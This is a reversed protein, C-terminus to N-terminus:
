RRSKVIANVSEAASALAAKATKTGALAEILEAGIARTVLDYDPTLFSSYPHAAQQLVVAGNPCATKVREDDYASRRIPLWGTAVAQQIQVESSLFFQIMSGALDQVKSKEAVTWADAGDISATGAPGAPLLSTKVMNAVPSTSRDNLVGWMFPWNMMMSAKGTMFLATAENISTSTLASEHTAPMLDIMFQLADIGEPSLFGARGDRDYLTGGAQQLFAFWYSATGGIGSPAGYNVAWGAREKTTIAKAVRLLEDWTAPPAAIGAEQLHAENCHLTLLSLSLPAGYRVGNWTVAHASSPPLDDLISPLIMRDMSALNQSFEPIWGAVYNVDHLAARGDFGAAIKDHIQEWAVAEFTIFTGNSKQWSAVEQEAYGGYGPPVPNPSRPCLLSVGGAGEADRIGLLGAAVGAGALVRRRTFSLTSLAESPM